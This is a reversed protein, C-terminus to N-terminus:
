AESSPEVLETTPGLIKLTVATYSAPATLPPLSMRVARVQVLFVQSNYLVSVLLGKAKRVRKLSETINIPHYMFLVFLILAVIM